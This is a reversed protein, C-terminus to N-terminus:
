SKEVFKMVRHVFEEYPCEGVGRFNGGILGVVGESNGNVMRPPPYPYKRSGCLASPAFYSNRGWLISTKKFACKIKHAL